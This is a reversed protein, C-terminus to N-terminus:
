PSPVARRQRAPRQARALRELYREYYDLTQAAIVHSAFRARAERAAQKGWLAAREPHDLVTILRDALDDANGPECLLGNEEHRVIEPIGGASAAILPSGHAMAEVVTMPFNEYRSPVITVCAKLRWQRIEAPSMQGLCDIRSRVALDPVRSALFEPLSVGQAGGSRLGWDPGVFALRLSPRSAAVKAFGEIAIDGGKHKDFRGVFLVLDRDASQSSWQQDEPVLPATNPIVEAHPLELGYHRRVQEITDAAPSTVGLANAIATRERAIRNHYYADHPMSLAAATLFYPGHLRVVVPVDVHNNVVAFAGLTEEMEIVDPIFHPHLQRVGAAVSRGYRLRGADYPFLRAHAAEGIRDLLGRKTPIRDLAVVDPDVSGEATAAALIRTEVRLQAFGDRLQEVYTAIGNAFKSTPWGPSVLAVKLPLGAAVDSDPARNPGFELLM